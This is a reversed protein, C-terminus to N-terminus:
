RRPHPRRRRRPAQPRWTQSCRRKPPTLPPRPAARPARLNIRRSPPAAAGRGRPPFSSPVRPPSSSLFFCPLPPPPWLEPSPAAGLHKQRSFYPVGGGRTVGGVWGGAHQQSPRAPRSGAAFVRRRRRARMRGEARARGAQGWVVWHVGGSRGVGARRAHPVQNSGGPQECVSSTKPAGGKVRCASQRSEHGLVQCLPPLRPAGAGQGSHLAAAPGRGTQQGRARGGGAAWGLARLRPWIAAARARRFQRRAAAGILRGQERM